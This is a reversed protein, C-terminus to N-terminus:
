FRRRRQTALISKVAGMTTLSPIVSNCPNDRDYVRNKREYRLVSTATDLRTGAQAFFGM